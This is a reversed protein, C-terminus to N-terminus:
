TGFPMTMSFQVGAAVPALKSRGTESFASSGIRSRRLTSVPRLLAYLILEVVVTIIGLFMESAIGLRWLFEMSTLNAATAIADTAVFIRGRIFVEEVAGLVITILYLAGAIRAYLRPSPGAGITHGTTM